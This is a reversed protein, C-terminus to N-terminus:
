DTLRYIHEGEETVEEERERREKEGDKTAKAKMQTFRSDCMVIAVTNFTVSNITKNTVTVYM